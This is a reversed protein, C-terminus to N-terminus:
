GAIAGFRLISAAEPERRVPREEEVLSSTLTMKLAAIQSPQIPIRSQAFWGVQPAKSEQQLVLQSPGDGISERVLVLRHNGCDSPFVNLVKSNM